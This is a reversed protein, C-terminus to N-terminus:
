FGIRSVPAASSIVGSSRWCDFTKRGSWNMVDTYRVEAGRLGLSRFLRKNEDVQALVNVKSGELVCELRRLIAFPLIVRGYQSQRFDGRLLDALAWIDAALNNDNQPLQRCDKDKM